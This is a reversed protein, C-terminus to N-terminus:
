LFNESTPSQAARDMAESVAEEIGERDPNFGAENLRSIVVDTATTSDVPLNGGFIDRSIEREDGEFANSFDTPWEVQPSPDERRSDEAKAVVRLLSEEASQITEALVSMAAAPGSRNRADVESATMRGSAQSLSQYATRYLEQRKRKLAESGHQLGKTGVNLSKHQGHEKDYPVAIAGSKLAQKIADAMEGSGGTAVQLLGGGLSNTLASDMKSKIRFLSRHARAVSRGFPVKWPLVIRQAPPGDFSFGEEYEGGDVREEDVGEKDSQVYVEYSDDRYITWAEQEQEDGFVSDGMTRTGKLVVADQTWRPVHQPGTIMLGQAPDMIAWCEDYAILTETLNILQTVYSQDSPGIASLYADDIETERVVEGSRSFLEGVLRSILDRTHPKWDVTDKRAKFALDSEFAGQVLEASVQDGTHLRRILNWSRLHEDYHANTAKSVPM